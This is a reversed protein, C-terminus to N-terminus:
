LSQTFKPPTEPASKELISAV